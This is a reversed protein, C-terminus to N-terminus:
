SVVVVEVDAPLWTRVRHFAGIFLIGVEGPRLSEDIRKAIFRDRAELLAASRGRYAMEARAREGPEKAAAMARVLDYEEQLLAADETSEIQAGRCLLDKILQYNASGSAAVEEVIRRATEGAAPLGDQYIRVKDWAAGALARELRAILSVRLKEWLDAVKREHEQWAAQGLAKRGIAGLRDAVSGHDARGHIIPVYILKRAM